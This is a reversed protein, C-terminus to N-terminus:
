VTVFDPNLAETEGSGATGGLSQVGLKLTTWVIVFELSFLLGMGGETDGGAPETLRFVGTNKSRVM